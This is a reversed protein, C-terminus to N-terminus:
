DEDSTEEEEDSTEEEEDSTEEEEDSTEVIFGDNMTYEGPGTYDEDEVGDYRRDYHDAGVFGSGPTYIRDTYENRPSKVIRGSRTKVM